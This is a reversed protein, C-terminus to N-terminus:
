EKIHKNPLEWMNPLEGSGFICGTEETFFICDECDDSEKECYHILALFAGKAIEDWPMM